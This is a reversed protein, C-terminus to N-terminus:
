TRDPTSHHPQPPLDSGNVLIRNVVVDAGPIGRAIEGAAQRVMADPVIGTLEILGTGPAHVEITLAATVDNERLAEAVAERVVDPEVSPEGDRGRIRRMARRVRDSRLDGLMEGTVMGVILGAAFGFAATLAIAVPNEEPETRVILPVERLM